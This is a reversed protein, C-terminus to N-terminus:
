AIIMKSIFPLIIQLVILGGIMINQTRISKEQRDKIEKIMGILGGDQGQGTLITELITIRSSHDALTEVIKDPTM